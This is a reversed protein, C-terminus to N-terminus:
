GVSVGAPVIAGGFAALDLEPLPTAATLASASYVRVRGPQGAGSGVILKNPGPAGEEVGAIAVQAGGRAVPDYAFFDASPVTPITPLKNLGSIFQSAPTVRVRPGGGPGGGFALDPVSDGDLDGAAVYVGNRVQPEFVFFNAIQSPAVVRAVSAGDWITVRPGGGDGAAIVLEAQGDRNFDALAPRVGGRFMPDDIGFYRIVQAADGVLGRALRAGDYVAVVPGGGVDPTVVVDPIGDGTVDGTAVYVGGTFAKEYVAFDVLTRNTAGDIVVLRSDGGPGAGAILDPIGDGTIDAVATRTLINTGFSPPVPGTFSIGNTTLNARGGRSGPPGGLTLPRAPPLAPGVPPLTVPPVPPTPPVPAPPVTVPPVIPPVPTPPVPPDIPPPVTPPVVPDTTAPLIVRALKGRFTTAPQDLRGSLVLKGDPTLASDALLSGAVGPDIVGADDYPGTLRDLTRTTPSITALYVTTVGNAPAANGTLLTSGNALIYADKIDLAGGTALVSGNSGFTSDFAGRSTLKTVVGTANGGDTTSGILLIGNDPTAFLTTATQNPLGTDASITQIGDLDFAGDRLGAPTLKVIGGPSDGSQARTLFLSGDPRVLLDTTRSAVPASGAPRDALPGLEPRYDRSGSPDLQGTPTIRRVAIGTMTPDTSSQSTQGAVLVSGDSLLELDAFQFGGSIPVSLPAYRGPSTVTFGGNGVLLVTPTNQADSVVEVPRLGSSDLLVENTPGLVPDTTFTTDRSGDPNYRRLLTSVNPGGIPDFGITRQEVFLIKGDTQVAVPGASITNDRQLRGADGFSPDLTYAAPALRCELPTVALRTM